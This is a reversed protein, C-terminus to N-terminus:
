DFAMETADNSGKLQQAIAAVNNSSKKKIRCEYNQLNDNATQHAIDTQLKKVDSIQVEKTDEPVWEDTKDSSEDDKYLDELKRKEM